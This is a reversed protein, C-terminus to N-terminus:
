EPQLGEVFSAPKQFFALDIKGWDDNDNPGHSGDSYDFYSFFYYEYSMCSVYDFGDWEEVPIDRDPFNFMRIRDWSFVEHYMHHIDPNFGCSHGIEHLISVAQAIRKTRETLSFASMSLYAKRGMPVFICDYCNRDDQPHCWGGKYCIALYRFVGKRNKEFYKDYISSAVGKEQSFDGMPYGEGGKDFPIIDGGEGMCGDDIHVTIGHENFREIIMQQSEPYFEHTWGDPSELSVDFRPTQEMWDCEIYMEPYFPNALWDALQYEEINQLGDGDPDLFSHNNWTFPDYGWKWEWDTPIGDLDPDLNSDDIIPNTHLVNKEVWFPILDGDASTQSLSIWIEFDSGDYHCYGDSDNFSDDGSWRGTEYDYCLTITEIVNEGTKKRLINYENETIELTVDSYKQGETVDRFVTRDMYGTDWDNFEQKANWVYDDVTLTFSFQPKKNWGYGPRLGELASKMNQIWRDKASTVKYDDIDLLNEYAKFGSEFMQDIIGKKRIRHINIFLTQNTDDADLSVEKLDEMEKSENDFTPEEDSFISIFLISIITFSIAIITLTMYDKKRYNV